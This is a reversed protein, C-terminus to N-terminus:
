SICSNLPLLPFLVRVNYVYTCLPVLYRPKQSMRTNECRLDLMQVRSQRRQLPIFRSIYTDIFPM